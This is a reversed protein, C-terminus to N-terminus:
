NGIFKKYHKWQGIDVMSNKSEFIKINMGRERARDILEPMDIKENKEILEIIKPSLIYIGTNVLYKKSPKEEIGLFNNDSDSKIVGYSIDIEETATFITIDIDDHIHKELAESYDVDLLIDCNSVIFPKNNIYEKMFAISGATGLFKTEEIYDINYKLEKFYNKIMDKKYNVSFVFEDFGYKLFQGMINEIITEDKFPVLPKPIVRTLPLLRTGKGGAMILVKTKIKDIVQYNLDVYLVEKITEDENLIPIHNVKLNYIQNKSKFDKNYIKKPNKNMIKEVNDNYSYNKIKRRIDGDTISGILQNKENLIFIIKYDIKNFIKLCKKISIDKNVATYDYIKKIM